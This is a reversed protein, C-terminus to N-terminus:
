KFEKALAAIKTLCYHSVCRAVPDQYAPEHSFGQLRFQQRVSDKGTSRPSAGSISPVTGDGNSDQKECIIKWHSTEYSMPTMYPPAGVAIFEEVKHGGVYITSGGEDRTDRYDLSVADAATVHKGDQPDIGKRLTWTVNKFSAQAGIGAGYFVYTNFHFKGALREHFRRAQKINGEFEEWDIATGSKPNLWENKVLGWWKNKCLYIETYPDSKPLSALIKGTDDKIQLWNIGYESSPLLQLAGPAQAFVATVEPGSPGIVISAAYDEDRMGSKCRRYAVAAGVSPMVGHLVGAVKGAVGPREVCARAVLGGMSHTVLIVQQCKFLGHNNELIIKDIREELREAGATNSDLWNYGCAYVPFRWKARKLLEESMIPATFHGNEAHPPLGVMQMVIGPHLRKEPSPDGPKPVASMATYFFDDWDAPNSSDGNLKQELWLLFSHYSTEAIEGWGRERYITENAISGVGDSPVDGGEFVKTRSPHLTKQRVGAGKRAWYWALRIPVGKTSNLLWVPQNKLSCLNSGMIGPVFVIPLSQVPPLILKVPNSISTDTLTWSFTPTGNEGPRALQNRVKDKPVYAM